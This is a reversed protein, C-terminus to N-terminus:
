EQVECMSELPSCENTGVTHFSEPIPLIAIHFPESADENHSSEGIDELPFPENLHFGTFM